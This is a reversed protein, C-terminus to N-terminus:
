KKKKSKELIKPNLWVMKEHSIVESKLKGFPTADEDDLKIEKQTPKPKQAFPKQDKKNGKPGKNDEVITWM